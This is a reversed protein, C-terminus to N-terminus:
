LTALSDRIQLLADLEDLLSNGATVVTGALFRRILVRMGDEVELPGNSTDLRLAFRGDAGTVPEIACHWDDLTFRRTQFPAAERREARLTVDIRGCPSDGVFQVLAGHAEAAVCLTSWDPRIGSHVRTLASLLHPGLDCWTGAPDPPRGHAPSALHGAFRLGPGEARLARLTEAVVAYQTCLGLRLNRDKALAVLRQAERMLDERARAPGSLFPKECLVDCGAELATRVHGGHWADPTCVDVFDPSEAAILEAATHYAAVPHGLSQSVRGATAAASAASSGLVACVTAGEAEWWAAHHKGIGSAGFIAIRAM